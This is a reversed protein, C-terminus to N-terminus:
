QQSRKYLDSDRKKEMAEIRSIKKKKKMYDTTVNRSIGPIQFTEKREDYRNSIYDDIDIDCPAITSVTRAEPLISAYLGSCLSSFEHPTTIADNPSIIGEKLIKMFLKKAVFPSIAYAHHGLMFFYNENAANLLSYNRYTHYKNTKLFEFVEDMDNLDEENMIDILLREHGLYDISNLSPIHTYKKLFIADHELIIIPKNITICHAWLAVHSLTCAIEATTMKHEMIKLWKLWDKNKLHEPVKISKKDTGDFAEFIHYNEMGVKQLTEICRQAKEQSLQNDKITIIYTGEIETQLNVHLDLENKDYSVNIKNEVPFPKRYIWNNSFNKVDDLLHAVAPAIEEFGKQFIDNGCLYGGPKVKRFWSIIDRKVGNYTHDGDIFVFDLSDDAYLESIKASDGVVTNVYEKVPEINNLYEKYLTGNVICPLNQHEISGKFTDVVDFKIKKGSNIIEVAMCSTSKGKWAGIEVFHSGDKANKVMEHYIEIQPLDFWGELGWHYHEM